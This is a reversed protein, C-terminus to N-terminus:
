ENEGKYRDDTGKNRLELELLILISAAAHALHSKGSELDLSEMDLWSNMHRSAADWYRRWETGKMHNYAGYKQEGM